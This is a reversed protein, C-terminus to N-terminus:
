KWKNSFSSPVLFIRNEKFYFTVVGHYATRPIGAKEDTMLGFLRALSAFHNFNQYMIKLDMTPSYSSSSILRHTDEVVTAGNILSFFYPDYNEKKLYNLDMTSFPVFENNLVIQELHSTYFQGSSIGKQGFTFTRSIEPRICSRGKRQSPERM